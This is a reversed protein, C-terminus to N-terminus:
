VKNELLMEKNQAALLTEISELFEDRHSTSEFVFHLPTKDQFGLSCCKTGLAAKFIALDQDGIWLDQTYM